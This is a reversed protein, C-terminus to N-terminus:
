FVSRDVWIRFSSDRVRVNWIYRARENEDPRNKGKVFECRRVTKREGSRRIGELYIRLTSNVGHLKCQTMKVLEERITIISNFELVAHCLVPYGHFDKTLSTIENYSAILM